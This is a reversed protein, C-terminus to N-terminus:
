KIGYEDKIKSWKSSLSPNLKNYLKSSLLISSNSILTEYDLLNLIIDDRKNESNTSSKFDNFLKRYNNYVNRIRMVFLTHKLANQLLLLPLTLQILLVVVNSNGLLSFILFLIMFLLNRLWVSLLMENALHYSFFSNEFCNTALKYIGFEITDNTYYSISREEGFTTNFSNDILDNRRHVSANFFKIDSLFILLAYIIILFCNMFSIYGSFSDYGAFYSKIIWSICLISTSIILIINASKKLKRSQEFSGSYPNYYTM